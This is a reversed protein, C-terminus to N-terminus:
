LTAYVQMAACPDLGAGVRGSLRVRRMAAPSAANGNRGLFETRDGSVTRLTESSDVFVVKDAFEASYANRAFLAGSVPDLETVVHMQTKDRLEGLVWEWYGTVSLQRPRGSRNSIRLRAFKVPADTAVYLWLESIIGDEAYEFISYGFGHRAVYPNAGRAPLPSPSWFRGTEEDRIYIAEGSTDSVPDNYWPTLRFE